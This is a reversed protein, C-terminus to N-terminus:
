RLVKVTLNTVDIRSGYKMLFGLGGERASTVADIVTPVAEDPDAPLAETKVRKAYVRQTITYVHGELPFFADGSNAGPPLVEFEYLNRMYGTGQRALLSFGTKVIKVTFKLEYHKISTTPSPSWFAIGARETSADVKEPKVGEVVLTTGELRIRAGPSTQWPAKTEGAVVQFERPALLDRATVSNFGGSSEAWQEAVTNVKGAIEEHIDKAAPFKQAVLVDALEYDAKEYAEVIKAYDREGKEVMSDAKAVMHRAAEIASTGRAVFIENKVDKAREDDLDMLLKELEAAKDRMSIAMTPDKSMSRVDAILRDVRQRFEMQKKQDDLAKLIQRAESKDMDLLQPLRDTVYLRVAEIKDDGANAM